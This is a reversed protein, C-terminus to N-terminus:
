GLRGGICERSGEASLPLHDSPERDCHDCRDALQLEVVGGRWDAERALGEGGGPNPGQLQGSNM